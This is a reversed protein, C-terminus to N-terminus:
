GPMPLQNGLLVIPAFVSSGAPRSSKGLNGVDDNAHRLFVPRPTVPADLARYGIETMDKRVRRNGVNQFAM